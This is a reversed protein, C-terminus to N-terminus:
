TGSVKIDKNYRKKIYDAKYKSIEENQLHPDDKTKAIIVKARNVWEKEILDADDAIEPSLKSMQSLGQQSNGAMDHLKETTVANNSGQPTTGKSVASIEDVQGDTAANMMNSSPDAQNVAPLSHDDPQHTSNIQSM